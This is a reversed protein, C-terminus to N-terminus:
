ETLEFPEVSEHTTNTANDPVIDVNYEIGSEPMLILTEEISYGNIDTGNPIGTNHLIYVAGQGLTNNVLDRSTGVDTGITYHVLQDERVMRAFTRQTVTPLFSGNYSRAELRLIVSASYIIRQPLGVYVVKNKSYPIVVNALRSRKGSEVSLLLDNKGSKNTYLHSGVIHLDKLDTITIKGLNLKIQYPDLQLNNRIGTLTVSHTTTHNDRPYFTRTLTKSTITDLSGSPQIVIDDEEGPVRVIFKIYKATDNVGSFSVNLTVPGNDYLNVGAQGAAFTDSSLVYTLTNIM